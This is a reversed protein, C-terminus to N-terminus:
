YDIFCICSILILKTDKCISEVDYEIFCTLLINYTPM